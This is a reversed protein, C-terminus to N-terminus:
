SVVSSFMTAQEMTVTDGNHDTTEVQETGDLRRRAMACYSENLEIGICDRGLSRAVLGTTGAGFFPDLCVCPVVPEADYLPKLSGWHQWWKDLRVRWITLDADYELDTIGKRRSPKTPQDEIITLGSCECSPRWGLTTVTCGLTHDTGTGHNENYGRELSGRGAGAAKREEWPGSTTVGRM